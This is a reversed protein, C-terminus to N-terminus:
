VDTDSKLNDLKYLHLRPLIPKKNKAPVSSSGRYNGFPKIHEVGNFIWLPSHAIVTTKKGDLYRINLIPTKRLPREVRLMTSEPLSILAKSEIDILALWEEHNVNDVKATKSRELKKLWHNRSYPKSMSTRGSLSFRVSKLDANDLYHIHRSIAKRIGLPIASKTLLYQEDISNSYSRILLSLEDKLKNIRLVRSIIEEPKKTQINLIGPLRKAMVGPQGPTLHHDSLHNLARNIAESGTIAQPNLEIQNAGVDEATSPPLLFVTAKLETSEKLYNILSDIHSLLHYYDGKVQATFVPDVLIDKINDNLM